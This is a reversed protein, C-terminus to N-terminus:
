KHQLRMDVCQVCKECCKYHDQHKKTTVRLDIIMTSLDSIKEDYDKIVTEHSKKLNQITNKHSSKVLRMFDSHTNKLKEIAIAHSNKLNEMEEQHYLHQEILNILNSREWKEVKKTLSKAFEEDRKKNKELTKSLDFYKEEWTKGECAESFVYNPTKSKKIRKIQPKELVITPLLHNKEGDGLKESLYDKVSSIWRSIWRLFFLVVLEFM